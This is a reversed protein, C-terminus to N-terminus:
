KLMELQVMGYIPMMIAVMFFAVLIGMCLLLIPEILTSINKVATDVEEDYYDALKSLVSDLEGTEQGVEIMQGVIDPFESSKKFPITM